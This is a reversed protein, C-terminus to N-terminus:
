CSLTKSSLSEQCEELHSEMESPTTDESCFPCTLVRFDCKEHHAQVNAGKAGLPGTWDCGEDSLPCRAELLWVAAEAFANLSLTM